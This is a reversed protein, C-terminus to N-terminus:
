LYKELVKQVVTYVDNEIMDPKLKGELKDGEKYVGTKVLCSNWNYSNAGIIDSAPNDGVMFVGMKGNDFKEFPTTSVIDRWNSYKTAAKNKQTGNVLHNRWQILVNHAFNYTINTPKGIVVDALTKGNNMSSYLTHVLLRFAGQGFRNLSYKNAWLLDNNSFYIPISPKESEETRITGLQGNKSILLDSIIQLDAAWDHPDNFVLIADFNKTAIDPIEKSIKMLEENILGSFPAVYNNHRIIDSQHVVDKFGYEKAVKRVNPIGVTLVKNYDKTLMKYPTHSLVVQREDINVDLIDSLQQAKEQELYGGGNTLVIFPINSSDLLKLAERGKPIATKSRLLVGDIDFAFALNNPNAASATSNKRVCSLLSRRFM